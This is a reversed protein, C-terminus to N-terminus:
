APNYRAGSGNAQLNTVVVQLEKDTAEYEATFEQTLIVLGDINFELPPKTLVMRGIKILIEENEAVGIAAGLFSVLAANKTNARYSKSIDKLVRSGQGEVKGPM